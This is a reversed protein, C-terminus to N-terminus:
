AEYARVWVGRSPKDDTGGTVLSIEAEIKVGDDMLPALRAALERRVYGVAGHETLVLIANPDYPNKKERKLRIKDGQRCLAIIDQRNTGDKNLHGEGVVDILLGRMLETDIDRVDDRMTRRLTDYDAPISSKPRSRKSSRVLHRIGLAAGGFLVLPVLIQEPEMATVM